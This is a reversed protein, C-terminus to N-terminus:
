GCVPVCVCRSADAYAFFIGDPSFRLDTIAASSHTLAPQTDTLYQPNLLYVQGSTTGVAIFRGQVDYTISHPRSSSADLLRVQVCVCVPVCLCVCACVPVTVCLLFPRAHVAACARLRM